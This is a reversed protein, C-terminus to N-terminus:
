GTGGPGLKFGNSLLTEGMVPLRAARFALDAVFVGQVAIKPSTM